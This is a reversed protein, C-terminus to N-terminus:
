HDLASSSATCRFHHFNELGSSESTFFSQHGKPLQEQGKITACGQLKQM